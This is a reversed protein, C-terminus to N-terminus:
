ESEGKKLLSDLWKANEEEKQADINVKPGEEKLWDPATKVPANNQGYSRNAQSMQKKREYNEKEKLADSLKLINNNISRSLWGKAYAFEKGLVGVEHLIWKVLDEEMGDQDIYTGLLEMQNPSPEYNFSNRFVEYLTPSKEEKKATTTSKNVKSEKVKSEKVKSQPNIGDNVEASNSNNNVSVGVLRYEKDILRATRRSTALLFREQIGRSTLIEYKEFMSEHFLGWKICDNVVEQVSNINVSVRSSFLLQEKETWNYFYGNKYIKMFLKIVIGFGLLGHKAEILAIKDDQDMDVDLPFYDLGEKKPRAMDGV